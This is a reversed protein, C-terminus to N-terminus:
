SPKKGKLEKVRKLLDERSIPKSNKTLKDWLRERDPGNFPNEFEPERKIKDM